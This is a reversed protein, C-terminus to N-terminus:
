RCLGGQRLAAWGTGGTGCAKSQKAHASGGRARLHWSLSFRGSRARRTQLTPHCCGPVDPCTRDEMSLHSSWPPTKVMPMKLGVRFMGQALSQVSHANTAM